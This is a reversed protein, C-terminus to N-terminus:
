SPQDKRLTDFKCHEALLAVIFILIILARIENPGLDQSAPRKVTQQLRALSNWLNITPSFCTQSAYWQM